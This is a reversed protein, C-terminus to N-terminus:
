PFIRLSRDIRALPTSEDDLEIGFSRRGVYTPDVQFQMWVVLRDGPSLQDYSLVVRGDRSAESSPNPEISNVQMGELWGEDLVVRPFRLTRHARIDIRAQFLLGGRLATPASLRLTAAPGGAVAESPRQGFRDLLALLAIVAFLTLIARRAWLGVMVSRGTVPAGEAQPDTFVGTM